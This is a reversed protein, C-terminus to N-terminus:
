TTTEKKEGDKLYEFEIRNVKTTPKCKNMACFFEVFVSPWQLDPDDGFGERKIEEFGYDTDRTLRELPEGEGKKCSSVIRIQRIHKVKQGKKLGRSQEVANVIDGPELFWWGLRRTVTKTGARVQETTKSFSMNRPM